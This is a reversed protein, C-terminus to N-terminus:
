ESRLAQMPDVRTARRAPIVIAVLAVAALLARRARRLHARRDVLHGVPAVRRRADAGARRRHRHRARHRRADHRRAAGHRAGDVRSAGLAVRIGIEQTRQAVTYAMVGYIGVAALVLAVFGFLLMLTLTFRRQALSTAVLTTSRSSTSSRSRRISRPSPPARRASAARASRRRHARGADDDARRRTQALPWYMEPARRGTSGTAACTASSASSPPGRRITHDRASQRRVHRGIRIATPRSGTCGPRISSPSTRRPRRRRRRHLRPGRVLPIGMAAFYDGVVERSRPTPATPPIPRRSARSARVLLDTRTARCRCSTSAASRAARRAAAGAARRRRRLLAVFRANIADTVKGDPVPLSVSLALAHDARFGPDVDRLRIFSRVMLGTGVLLVLSLAVEAVVLAKRLRGRAPPPAARATRSRTTCIPARRRCRRCWGSSSAPRRRRRRHHVGLVRGDLAVEAARPLADPALAGARRRGLSRLVLGLAGGAVALLVSETLLQRVLRGRGRASRPASPWRATARRRARSCCTPWTPAPSSCCSPSRASCSSCRCGCTASSTTSSRRRAPPRPRRSAPYIDGHAESLRQAFRPSTPTSAAGHSM